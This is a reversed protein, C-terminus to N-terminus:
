SCFNSEVKHAPIRNKEVVLVVDSYEDSVYLKGIQDSSFSGDPQTM